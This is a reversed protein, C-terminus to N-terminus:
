DALFIVDPQPATAKRILKNGKKWLQWEEVVGTEIQVILSYYLETELKMEYSAELKQKPSTIWLKGYDLVLEYDAAPVTIPEGNMSVSYAEQVGHYTGLHKRPFLNSTGCATLLFFLISFILHNKM